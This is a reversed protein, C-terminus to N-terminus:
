RVASLKITQDKSYINGPIRWEGAGRRGISGYQTFDDFSNRGNGLTNPNELTVWLKSFTGSKSQRGMSSIILTLDQNFEPATSEDLECKLSGFFQPSSKEIMRVIQRKQGGTLQFPLENFIISLQDYNPFLETLSVTEKNHTWHRLVANIKVSKEIKFNIARQSKQNQNEM